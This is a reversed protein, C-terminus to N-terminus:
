FPIFDEDPEAIAELAPKVAAPAPEPKRELSLSLSIYNKGSASTKKWGAVRLKINGRDDFVAQGSVAADYLIKLTDPTVNGPGTFDPQNDREKRENRFLSASFNSDLM